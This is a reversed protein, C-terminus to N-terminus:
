PRSTFFKWVKKILYQSWFLVALPACFVIILLGCMVDQYIGRGVEYDENPDAKQADLTHDKGDIPQFTKDVICKYVKWCKIDYMAAMYHCKASISVDSSGNAVAHGLQSLANGIRGLSTKSYKNKM